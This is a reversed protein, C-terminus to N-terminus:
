NIDHQDRRKTQIDSISETAAAVVLPMTVNALLSPGYLDGSTLRSNKQLLPYCPRWLSPM